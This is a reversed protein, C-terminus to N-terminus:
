IERASFCFYTAIGLVVLVYHFWCGWKLYGSLVTVFKYYWGADMWEVFIQSDVRFKVVSFYFKFKKGM